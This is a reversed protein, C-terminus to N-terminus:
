TVETKTPDREGCSGGRGNDRAWRGKGKGERWAGLAKHGVRHGEGWVRRAEGKACRWM